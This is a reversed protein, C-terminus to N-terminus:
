EPEANVEGSGQPQGDTNTLGPEVETEKTGENGKDHPTSNDKTM